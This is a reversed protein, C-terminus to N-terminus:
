PQGKSPFAERFRVAALFSLIQEHGLADTEDERAAARAPCVFNPHEGRQQRPELLPMPLPRLDDDPRAHAGEVGRVESRACALVHRLQDFLSALGPPLDAVPVHELRKQRDVLQGRDAAQCDAEREPFDCRVAQEIRRRECSRQLPQDVEPLDVLVNGVRVNPQARASHYRGGRVGVPADDKM